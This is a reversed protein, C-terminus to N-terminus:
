HICTIIRVARKQLKFIRDSKFGLHCYVGKSLLKDMAMQLDKPTNRTSFSIPTRTLPPLSEWELQVGNGLTRSARCDGLLNQWQQVFSTLHAGVQLTENVLPLPLDELRLNMGTPVVETVEGTPDEEDKNSSINDETNDPSNRSSVRDLLWPLGIFPNGGGPVLVKLDTTARTVVGCLGPSLLVLHQPIGSTPQFVVMFVRQERLKVIEEYFRNPDPGMLHTGSFPATRARSATSQNLLLHDLVVDWRVLQLNSRVAVSATISRMSAKAAIIIMEKLLPAREDEPALSHIISSFMVDAISGYVAARRSLEESASVCAAPVNFSAPMSFSCFSGDLHPAKIPFDSDPDVKLRFNKKRDFVQNSFSLRVSVPRTNM